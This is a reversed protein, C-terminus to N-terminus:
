ITFDTLLILIDLWMEQVPIFIKMLVIIIHMNELMRALM